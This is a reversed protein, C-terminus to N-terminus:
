EAIAKAAAGEKLGEATFDRDKLELDHRIRSGDIATTSGPRAGSVSLNAPISKAQDLVVKTTDIRRMLQGGPAYKEVRLPVMRRTDIWSKVSGYISRGKPPKSELVQCNVGNVTESGALAQQDWAFFNEIADEAALDSGLVPDKLDIPKLADPPTFTSASLKGGSKRLLVAEGKREKPWLVQYIVDAQGGSRREKIQLQLTEKSAGAIEMRVRIVSSSSERVASLKGALDKASIEAPEAAFVHGALGVALTASLLARLTM